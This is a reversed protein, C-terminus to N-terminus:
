NDKKKKWFPSKKKKTGKITEDVIGAAEQLAKKAANVKRTLWLKKWKKGM